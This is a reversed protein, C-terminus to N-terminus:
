RAGLGAASLSQHHVSAVGCDFFRRLTRNWKNAPLEPHLAAVGVCFKSITVPRQGHRWLWRDIASPRGASKSEVLVADRMVATSGDPDTCALGADCTIRVGNM